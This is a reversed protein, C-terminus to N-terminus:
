KDGRQESYNLQLWIKPKQWFISPKKKFWEETLQYPTKRKISNHRRYVNYRMEYMKFDKNMEKYDRYRHVKITNEKIMGNVREVMGNTWPSKIKTTRHEIKSEECSKTFKHKKKVNGKGGRAYRNNTFEFGNDTLVKNIQFPFFKKCSELFATAEEMSKSDRLEVYILRTARDVGVYLYKKKGELQPVYTLDIHIFGPEYRKFRKIKRDNKQKKSVKNRQLTRSVNSQNAQPILHKVSDAIDYAAAWTLKRLIVIIKEEGASLAYHIKNPRSSKDNTYNRKKWKGITKTSVKLQKSLELPSEESSQILERQFKNTTANTHYNM